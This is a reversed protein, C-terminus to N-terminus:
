TFARYLNKAARACTKTLFWPTGKEGKGVRSIKNKQSELYKWVFLFSNARSMIEPRSIKNFGILKCTYVGGKKEV